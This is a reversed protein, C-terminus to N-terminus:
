LLSHLMDVVLENTTHIATEARSCIRRIKSLANDLAKVMADQVLIDPFEILVAELDKITLSTNATGAMLTVLKDEKYRWLYYYLFKPNVRREDWVILGSM